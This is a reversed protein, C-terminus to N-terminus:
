SSFNKVILYDMIREDVIQGIRFVGTFLNPAIINELSVEMIVLKM